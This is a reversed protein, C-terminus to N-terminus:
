TSEGGLLRLVEAVAPSDKGKLGALRRFVEGAAEHFGPPLDAAALSDAIEGMEGAFRWAKPGSRAASRELRTVLGPISLEWEAALEEGVGAAAAYARMAFLLATSGKTWGAYAMKLASAATADGEIVRAELPSGEWVSAVTEAAPGCLYLRTTGAQRPPPGIIGGDVYRPFMSGVRAATQPAIANADVYIGDFGAASVGEAVQFAAQPPCVSVVVDVAAVLDALSDVASLGAGAARQETAASRGARVWYVPAAAAAGLVAGMAGPHLIGLKM